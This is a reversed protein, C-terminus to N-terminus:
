WFYHNPFLLLRKLLFASFYNTSFENRSLPGAVRNLDHFTSLAVGNLLRYNRVKGPSVHNGHSALVEAFLDKDPSSASFSQRLSKQDQGTEILAVHKAQATYGTTFLILFTLVFFNKV